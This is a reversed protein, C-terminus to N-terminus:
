LHCYHKKTFKGTYPFLLKTFISIYLYMGQFIKVGYKTVKKTNGPTANELLKIVKDETLEATFCNEKAVM